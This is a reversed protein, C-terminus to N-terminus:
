ANHRAQAQRYGAAIDGRGNRGWVRFRSAAERSQATDTPLGLMLLMRSRKLIANARLIAMGVQRRVRWTFVGLAIDETKFLMQRWQTRAGTAALKALIHIFEKNTEGYAGFVAPIPGEMARMAQEVPGRDAPLNTNPSGAYQVDVKHAKKYCENPVQAARRNVGWFPTDAHQGTTPYWVQCPTISKVELM